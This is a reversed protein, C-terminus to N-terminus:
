KKFQRGKWHYTGTFARLAVYVTVFPYLLAGIPYYTFDKKSDTFVLGKWILFADIILKWFIFFLLLSFKAKAFIAWGEGSLFGNFLLALFGLVVLILTLNTLFVVVGVVKPFVASYGTAKAAWRIRQSFLGAWDEQASTKVLADRHKLYMVQSPFSKQFKELMFIDDGSAIHDNGNFGKLLLFSAKRYCLNAGNAMFPLGLGFAGITAGLLSHVDLSEFHYLLNLKSPKLLSIPAAILEPDNHKIITNFAQLWQKPVICDADTTLIWDHKACSLATRIADKKPSVSQRFNELIFLNKLGENKKFESIIAVSADTSGDDVLFIEYSETPYDLLSLSKLLALLHKEEDRFAVVISFSAQPSTKPMPVIPTRNFGIIFCVVILTYLSVIIQLYLIM